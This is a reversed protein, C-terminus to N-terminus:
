LQVLFGIEHMAARDLGQDIGLAAIRNADGCARDAQVAARRRRLDDRCAIGVPLLDQLPDTM